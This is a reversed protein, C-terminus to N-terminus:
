ISKSRLENSGKAGSRKKFLAKVVDDPKADIRYRVKAKAFSGAKSGKKPKAKKM